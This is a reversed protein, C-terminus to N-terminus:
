TELVIGIASLQRGGIQHASAYTVLSSLILMISVALKINGPPKVLIFCGGKTTVNAHSQAQCGVSRDWEVRARPRIPDVASIAPQWHRLNGVCKQVEGFNNCVGQKPM